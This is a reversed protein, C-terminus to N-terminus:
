LRHPYAKLTNTSTLMSVQGNALSWVETGNGDSRTFLIADEDFASLHGLGSRDFDSLQKVVKTELHVSFVQRVDDVDSFFALSQGGPSWSIDQTSVGEALLTPEGPNEIKYAYISSTSPENEGARKLALGVSSGDPSWELWTVEANGAEYLSTPPEGVRQLWLGVGKGPGNEKALVLDGSSNSRVAYTDQSFGADEYVGDVSLSMISPSIDDGDDGLYVYLVGQAENWDLFDGAVPAVIEEGNRDLIYTIAGLEKDAPQGTVAIVGLERSSPHIEKIYDPHEDLLDTVRGQSYVSLNLKRGEKSFDVNAYIVDGDILSIAKTERSASICTALAILAVSVFVGVTQTRLKM